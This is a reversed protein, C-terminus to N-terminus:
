NKKVSNSFVKPFTGKLVQRRWKFYEIMEDKSPQYEEKIAPHGLFNSMWAATSPFKVPDFIKMSAVEEWIPLIYSIWGIIIDLYGIRDGGFFNKGKLIEEIKELAEISSKVAGQQEDDESCLGTWAAKFLKEEAFKAWFRATAREYPDQPLLPNQKWVDDIYELIIFSEPLPKGSHVLVPVKGHVPNLESLLPSKNFIDEEIYEYEIGKLKLAWRVRHVFPSVWFGVLKVASDKDNEM